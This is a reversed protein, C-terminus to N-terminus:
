LTIVRPLTTYSQIMLSPNEIKRVIMDAAQLGMDYVNIDVVTPQPDLISTYPYIDFTLFFLDEPVRIGLEALARAAGVAITNNECVIAKPPEQMALLQRVADYGEQWTSNTHIVYEPSIKKHHKLLVARFGREREKSILENRRGGIFSVPSVDHNVLYDAAYQGALLHNTDVWCLRNDFEPHGIVIHPFEHDIILNAIEQNIVSGHIVVGDASKRAIIEAVTERPHEDDSIDMMTMTYGQRALNTFVGCMIDFMHPNRYAEGEALATLYIINRTTGRAFSVARANPTYNLALISAHVRDKTEQSITKWDNLVKSVTSVSVGAHKAVDKITVAM